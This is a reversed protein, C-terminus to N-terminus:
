KCIWLQWKGTLKQIHPDCSHFKDKSVLWYTGKPPDERIFRKLERGSYWGLSPRTPGDLLFEYDKPLQRIQAAVPRPDWTENLEWLWLKSQWFTILGICWCLILIFLGSFRIRKLPSTLLIGGAFLGIGAILISFIPLKNSGTFILYIGGLSLISGLIGWTSGVWKHRGQSLMQNLSEACILAIPAWLLHTYWPLQTRLPFVMAASGVLLGLEWRGATERRHKWAWLLGAPLLLIWPWGGEILETWPIWYSHSDGVTKTIRAIGQGGWMILANKGRISLHWLHWSLGPTLGFLLPILIHRQQLFKIGGLILVLISFGIIAPPKLLLIGTGALGAIFPNYFKKHANLWSLWLLITFSVLTGDLMVLRGHRAMPLLTMLILGSLAASTESNDGGLSRRFCVILPIALSSLFTPLIRVNFEEEGKTRILQGIPLHLGPPKNLYDQEWKMPLLTETSRAVTAIRGEDWDRLPLNGLGPLWVSVTILWLLVPLLFSRKKLMHEM